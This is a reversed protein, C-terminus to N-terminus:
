VYLSGDANRTIKNEPKPKTFAQMYVMKFAYAGDSKRGDPTWMAVTKARFEDAMFWECFSAVPYGGIEKEALWDLFSLWDQRKGIKGKASANGEWPVYDMQMVLKWTDAVRAKVQGQMNLARDRAQVPNSVKQRLEFYNKAANCCDIELQQNEIGYRQLIERFMLRVQRSDTTQTM